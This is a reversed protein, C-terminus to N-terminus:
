ALHKDKTKGMRLRFRTSRSWVSNDCLRCRSQIDLAAIRTLSDSDSCEELLLGQKVPLSPTNRSIIAGSRYFALPGCFTAPPVRASIRNRARASALFGRPSVSWQTIFESQVSVINAYVLLSYHVPLYLLTALVLQPLDFFAMFFSTLASAFSISLAM